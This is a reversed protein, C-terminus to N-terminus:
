MIKFGALDDPLQEDEQLEELNIKRVTIMKPIRFVNPRVLTTQESVSEGIKSKSLIDSAVKTIADIISNITVALQDMVKKEGPLLPYKQVIRGKDADISKEIDYKRPVCAGCCMDYPMTLSVKGKGGLYVTLFGQDPSSMRIKWNVPIAKYEPNSVRKRMQPKLKFSDGLLRDAAQELAKSSKQKM